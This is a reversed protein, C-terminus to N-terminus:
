SRMDLLASLRFLSWLPINMSILCAKINSSYKLPSSATFLYFSPILTSPFASPHPFLPSGALQLSPVLSSSPRPVPSSPCTALRGASPQPFACHQAQLNFSQSSPVIELFDFPNLNNKFGKQMLRLNNAVLM